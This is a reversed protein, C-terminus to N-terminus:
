AHLSIIVLVLGLVNPSLYTLILLIIILLGLSKIGDILQLLHETVLLIYGCQDYGVKVLNHLHNLLVNEWRFLSTFDEVNVEYVGDPFIDKNVFSIFIDDLAFSIAFWLYLVGVM